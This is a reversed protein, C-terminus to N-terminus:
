SASGSGLPRRRGTTSTSGLERGGTSQAATRRTRPRAGARYTRFRMLSDHRKAASALGPARKGKAATRVADVEEPTLLVAVHVVGRARGGDLLRTLRALAKLDAHGRYALDVLAEAGTKPLHTEIAPDDM